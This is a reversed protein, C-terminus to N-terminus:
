PTVGTGSVCILLRYVFRDERQYDRIYFCSFPVPECQKLHCLICYPTM